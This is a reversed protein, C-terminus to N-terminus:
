PLNPPLMSKKPRGRGRGANISAVPFGDPGVHKNKLHTYLAPYSLYTKGCFSCKHDRGSADKTRRKSRSDINEDSDLDEDDELNEVNRSNSMMGGITYNKDSPDQFQQKNIGM